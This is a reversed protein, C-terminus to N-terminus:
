LFYEDDRGGGDGGPRIQRNRLPPVNAAVQTGDARYAASERVFYLPTDEARRPLKVPNRVPSIM